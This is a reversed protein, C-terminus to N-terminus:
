RHCNDFHGIAIDIYGVWRLLRTQSRDSDPALTLAPVSIPGQYIAQKPFVQRQFLTVKHKPIECPHEVFGGPQNHLKMWSWQGEAFPISVSLHFNSCVSFICLELHVYAWFKHYTGEGKWRPELVSHGWSVTYPRRSPAIVPRATSYRSFALPKRDVGPKLPATTWSTFISGLAEM